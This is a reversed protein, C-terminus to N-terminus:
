VPQSKLIDGNAANDTRGCPKMHPFLVINNHPPTESYDFLLDFQINQMLEFGM